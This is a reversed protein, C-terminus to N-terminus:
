SEARELRYCPNSERQPRWGNTARVRDRWRSHHDVRRSTPRAAGLPHLRELRHREGRLQRRVALRHRQRRFRGCRLRGAGAQRPLSAGPQLRRDRDRRDGDFDGLCPRSGSRARLCRQRREASPPRQVRGCWRPRLRRRRLLGVAAEGFCSRADTWRRARDVEDGDFDGPCLRVLTGLMPSRASADPRTTPPSASPSTPARSWRSAHREARRGGRRSGRRRRRDVRLRCLGRRAGHRAGVRLQGRSHARVRPQGRRASLALVVAGVFRHTM